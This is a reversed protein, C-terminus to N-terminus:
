ECAGISTRERTWAVSSRATFRAPLGTRIASLVLLDFTGNRAETLAERGTAVPMVTFGKFRLATSVLERIPDEDEVVLLNLSDPEAHAAAM